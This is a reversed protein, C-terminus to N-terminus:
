NWLDDSAYPHIFNFILINNLSVIDSLQPLLFLKECSYYLKQKKSSSPTEVIPTLYGASDYGSHCNLTSMHNLALIFSKTVTNQTVLNQNCTTKDVTCNSLTITYSSSYQYFINTATNELICSDQIILTGSTYITGETGLTGQTNRLINCSKIEYKAGGTALMICTYETAINDAFTSYTLSFTFSNSDCFPTSYIERGYYKNLSLNVSPYCQKGYRHRFIHWANTNTKVCRTISSYNVYSKSSADNKVYVYSFQGNSSTYCDYGCVEHFVCQGSGTNAFYIAGGCSGGARCSFFSSSEVLLCQVSSCYIAGGHSSSTTSRFLCNLVYVNTDSLTQGTGYEQKQLLTPSGTFYDSWVTRTNM